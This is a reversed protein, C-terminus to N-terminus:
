FLPPGCQGALKRQMTLDYFQILRDMADGDVDFNGHNEHPSIQNGVNELRSRNIVVKTGTSDLTFYSPMFAPYGSVYEFVRGDQNSAMFGDAGLNHCTDCNGQGNANKDAWADAVGEAEWDALSMCGSWEAMASVAVGGGAAADLKEQALWAEIAGVDNPTFTAGYHGGGTGNALLQTGASEYGPYLRDKHITVTDYAGLPDAAVFAPDQSSHCAGGPNCTASLPARVNSEFLAKATNATPDVPNEEEVPAGADAAPTVTSPPTGTEFEGVCGTAALALTGFVALYARNM